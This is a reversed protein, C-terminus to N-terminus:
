SSSNYKYVAFSPIFILALGVLGILFFLGSTLPGLEWKLIKFLNGLITLSSFVAGSVFALKKM